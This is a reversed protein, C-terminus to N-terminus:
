LISFFHLKYVVSLKRDKDDKRNNALYSQTYLICVHICIDLYVCM